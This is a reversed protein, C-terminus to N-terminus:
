QKLQLEVLLVVSRVSSSIVIKTYSYECCAGSAGEASGPEEFLLNKDNNQM